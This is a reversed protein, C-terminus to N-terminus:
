IWMCKKHTQLGSLTKEEMSHKSLINKASNNMHNSSLADKDTYVGPM